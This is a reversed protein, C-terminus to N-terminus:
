FIGFDLTIDQDFSTPIFSGFDIDQQTLLYQIPNEFNNGFSGFDWSLLNRVDIGYVTSEINNANVQNVVLLGLGNNWSLNNNTASVTTGNSPYYALRGASGTNVTGANNTIFENLTTFASNVKNFATRLDDGTGDNAYNGLNITDIPM